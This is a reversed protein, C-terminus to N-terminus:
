CPTSVLTRQLSTTGIERPPDRIPPDVRGRERKGCNQWGSPQLRVVVGEGGERVVKMRVASSPLRRNQEERM